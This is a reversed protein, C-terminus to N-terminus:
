TFASMEQGLSHCWAGPILEERLADMNLYRPASGTRTYRSPWPGYGVCATPRMSFSRFSSRGATSRKTRGRSCTPRSLTSTTARPLRYFISTEGTKAEVWVCLWPNTGQWKPLWPARDRRAEDLSRRNCLWCLEQLCGDGARRPLYDLANRLFRVYCRQWAERKASSSWRPHEVLPLPKM